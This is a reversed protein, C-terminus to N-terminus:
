FKSKKQLNKMKSTMKPSKRTLKENKTSQRFIKFIKMKKLIKMQLTLKENKLENPPPIKPDIKKLMKPSM